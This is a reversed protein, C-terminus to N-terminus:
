KWPNSFKPNRTVETDTLTQLFAILEEKDRSTMHFGRVRPDKEPNPKGGSAYHDLVGELTAISGDHMYPATLAINRLSPARFKGPGASVGTNHLEVDADPNRASVTADSLNFGGHCQACEFHRDFFLVEGRKATESVADDERQYHYRDYPSSASIITREFCAIARTVNTVNWADEEGPYAAAFLKQYKPEKRIRAILGDDKRLGLEVPHEGYMPILAQEELDRLDANNWTLRAAYAVNVLSMAGRTHSEGTAGLGTARGDTFALEQKHCSSCSQKGNVSLRTDYFLHRGLEVRAASMPNDEPVYPVPFGPPLNWSWEETAPTIQSITLLGLALTVFARM